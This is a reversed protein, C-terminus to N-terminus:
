ISVSFLHPTKPTADPMFAHWEYVWATDFSYQMGRVHLAHYMAGDHTHLIVQFYLFIQFSGKQFLGKGYWDYYVPDNTCASALSVKQISSIYALQWWYLEIGGIWSNYCTAELPPKKNKQYPVYLSIHFLMEMNHYIKIYNFALILHKLMLSNSM